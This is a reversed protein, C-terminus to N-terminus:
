GNDFHIIPTYTHVIIIFLLVITCTCLVNQLFILFKAYSSPLRPRNYHPNQVSNFKFTILIIAARPARVRECFTTLMSSICALRSMYYVISERNFWSLYWIMIRKVARYRCPLRLHHYVYYTYLIILMLTIYMIM